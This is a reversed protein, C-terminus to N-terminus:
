RRVPKVGDYGLASLQAVFTDYESQTQAPGVIIRYSIQNLFRREVVTPLLGAGSLVASIQDAEERTKYVGVQAFPARPPKPAEVAAPAESEVSELAAAAAAIPDNSAPRAAPKTAAKEAAADAAAAAAAAEAAARVEAEAQEKAEREAAIRAREEERAKIRAEREAKRKAAAEQRRKKRLEEPTLAAAETGEGDTAETDAVEPAAEIVEETVEPEPAPEPEAPTITVTERRLAIVQLETPQGALIGLAAAANSSIQFRPGPFDRERRFLAGAVTKGTSVNTIRVREPQTADPHAVWVGGFSPRGDWLGTENASFISPADVDTEREIVETGAQVEAAPPAETTGTGELECASLLGVAALGGLGRVVLSTKM